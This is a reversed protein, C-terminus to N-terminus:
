QDNAVAEAFAKTPKVKVVMKDSTQYTKDSGPIKGSKGKQLAKSFNVFEPIKVDGDSIVGAKIATTVSVLAHQADAITKYGAEEKIANLLEAKKM